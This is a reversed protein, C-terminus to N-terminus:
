GRPRPHIQKVVGRAFRQIDAFRTIQFFAHRTIKAAGPPRGFRPQHGAFDGVGFDLLGGGFAVGQQQLIIEDFVFARLVINLQAIIFTKGIDTEALAIIKRPKSQIAAAAARAVIIKAGIGIHGGRALHQVMQM